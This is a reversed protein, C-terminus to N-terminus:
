QGMHDHQAGDPPTSSGIPGVAYTVDVSGGKAFTLTGSFDEGEKLPRALDMFMIHYSGPKLEVAGGAPIEVGDPLPRMKMVGDVVGMEHIEVRGAIEATASVLRDPEQGSNDITLYGGAVKAGPPTARAWPHDITLPGSKFDHAHGQHACAASLLAALVVRPAARRILSRHIHM